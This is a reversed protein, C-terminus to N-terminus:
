ENRSIGMRNCSMAEAAPEPGANPDVDVHEEYLQGSSIEIVHWFMEVRGM